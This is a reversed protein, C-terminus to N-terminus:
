RVQAIPLSLGQRSCGAQAASEYGARFAEARIQALRESDIPEMPVVQVDATPWALLQCTAIALWVAASGLVAILALRVQTRDTRAPAPTFNQRHASM